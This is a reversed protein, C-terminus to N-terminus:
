KILKKYIRADDSTRHQGLEADIFQFILIEIKGEHACKDCLILTILHLALEAM